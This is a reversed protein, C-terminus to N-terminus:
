PDLAEYLAHFVIVMVLGFFFLLTNSVRERGSNNKLGNLLECFLEGLDGSERRDYLKTTSPDAHGAASQVDELSPNNEVIYYDVLTQLCKYM